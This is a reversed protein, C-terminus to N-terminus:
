NEPEGQWLLDYGIEFTNDCMEKLENFKEKFSASAHSSEHQDFSRWYTVIVIHNEDLCQPYKGKETSLSGENSIFGASKFVQGAIFGGPGNYENKVLNCMEGLVLEADDITYNDKLKVVNFLMKSDFPVVIENFM